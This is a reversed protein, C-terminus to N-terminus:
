PLLGPRPNYVAPGGQDGPREATIGPCTADFAECKRFTAPEEGSKKIHVHM